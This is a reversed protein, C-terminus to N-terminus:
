SYKLYISELEKINKKINYHDAFTQYANQSFQELLDKDDLLKIVKDKFLNINNSKILFGNYGDKILDRNGDCDSAVCPKSLALSEIISYPMGEYRSTSIYFSSQNIINFVDTRETWNLLTIDNSMNLEKILNKVSELQGSVPGVGMIVLHIKRVKKVEYMVKIMLEINKQYSPRGVTCIYEDPWTKKITLPFITRIPEICNNFIITNQSKYGVEEIARKKESNSTALVTCANSTFAKEILLFINKKIKNEASLYSFAHPTYLIKIGLFLGAIKGLVGGKASHAHIVNPREIKLFRYADIISKLDKLLSLDRLISTKYEVVHNGNSDIFPNNTDDQGHIVFNIFKDQDLNKIIIRMYVDVGGVSNGIHAIKLKSLKM